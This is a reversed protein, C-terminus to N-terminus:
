QKLKSPDVNLGKPNGFHFASVLRGLDAAGASVAEQNAHFSAAATGHDISAAGFAALTQSDLSPKLANRLQKTQVVDGLALAAVSFEFDTEPQMTQHCQPASLANRAVDRSTPDALLYHGM